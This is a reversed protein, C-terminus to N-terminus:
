RPQSPEMGQRAQIPLLKQVWGATLPLLQTGLVTTIHVVTTSCLRVQRLRANGAGGKLM